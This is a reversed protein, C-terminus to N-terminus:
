DAKPIEVVFVNTHDSTTNGPEVYLSIGLRRAIRYCIYLPLLESTAYANVKEKAFRIFFNPKEEEPIPDNTKAIIAIRLATADANFLFKLGIDHANSVRAAEIILEYLLKELAHTDCCINIKRKDTFEDNIKLDYHDELQHVGNIFGNIFDDSSVIIDSDKDTVTRTSILNSLENLQNFQQLIATGTSKAENQITQKEESNEPLAGLVEHYGLLNNIPLRLQTVVNHLLTSLMDYSNRLLQRQENLQDITHKVAKEMHMFERGLDGIEDPRETLKDPLQVDYKGEGVMKTAAKLQKFPRLARRVSFYLIIIAALAALLAIIITDYTLSYVSAYVESFPTIVVAAWDLDSLVRWSIVSKEGKITLVEEGDHGALIENGIYKYISDNQSEALTFLTESLIYDQDRTTLFTTNRDLIISVSQSHHDTSDNDHNNIALIPNLNTLEVALTLVGSVEHDDDIIPVAYSVVPVDLLNYYPDTWFPVSKLSPVIYWDDYIYEGNVDKDSFYHSFIGNDVAIPMCNPHGPLRNPAYALAACSVYLNSEVIKDLIDMVALTDDMCARLAPVSYNAALEVTTQVKELKEVILDLKLNTEQEAEKKHNNIATTYITLLTALLVFLTMITVVISIRLTLSKIKM